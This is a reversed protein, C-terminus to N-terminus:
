YKPARSEGRVKAEIIKHAAYFFLYSNRLIGNHVKKEDLGLLRFVEAPSDMVLWKATEDVHSRLFGM